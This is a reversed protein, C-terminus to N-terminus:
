ESRVAKQIAKDIEDVTKRYYDLEIKVMHLTARLREIENIADDMLQYLSDATDAVTAVRLRTVIDDTM